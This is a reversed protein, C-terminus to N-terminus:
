FIIIKFIYTVHQSDIHFSHLRFHFNETCCDVVAYMLHPPNLHPYGEFCIKQLFFFKKPPINGFWTWGGGEGFTPVGLVLFVIKM